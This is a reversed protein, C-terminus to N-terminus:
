KALRKKNLEVLKRYFAKPKNKYSYRSLACGFNNDIKRAPCLRCEGKNNYKRSYFEDYECFFCDHDLENFGYGNDHLWDIKLVLVNDGKKWKKSVWKWMRLCEEWTKNLTM